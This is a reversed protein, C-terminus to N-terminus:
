PAHRYIRDRTVAKFRVSGVSWCEGGGVISGTVWRCSRGKSGHTIEPGRQGHIAPVVGAAPRERSPDDGSPRSAPAPIRNTASAPGPSRWFVQLGSASGRMATETHRSNREALAAVPAQGPKGPRAGDFM